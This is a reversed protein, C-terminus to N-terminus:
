AKGGHRKTHAQTDYVLKGCRSCISVPFDLKIEALQENTLPVYVLTM